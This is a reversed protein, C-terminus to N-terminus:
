VFMDLVRNSDEIRRPMLAVDDINGAAGAIRVQGPDVADLRVVVPGHFHLGAVANLRYETELVVFPLHLVQQNGHFM